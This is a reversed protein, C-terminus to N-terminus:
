GHTEEKRETGRSRQEDDSADGAPHVSMASAIYVMALIAFIYAQILGTLLGLLQMVLPFFFPVISLLIAGIVVGSMINGYLRVALAVTRSFEGIVNFPLMFVTPKLYQALYDALGREAIGYLPVAVLVCIALATTTSLSGTPPIFGPVVALLNSVAIFVFLTGVFPLFRGPDQHSVDRIQDRMGTVLVELLNQWRSIQETTSLRRTVLYSGAVLLAMVLWTFALTANLVLPGQQWLVIQDPSIRV